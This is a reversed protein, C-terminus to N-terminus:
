GTTNGANCYSPVKQTRLMIDRSSPITTNGFGTLYHAILPPVELHLSKVQHMFSLESDTVM